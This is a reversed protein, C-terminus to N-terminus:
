VFDLVVLHLIVCRSGIRYLNFFCNEKVESREEKEVLKIELVEEESMGFFDDEVRRRLPLHFLFCYALLHGIIFTSELIGVRCNLCSLKEDGDGMDLVDEDSDDLDLVDEDELHSGLVDENAESDSSLAESDM